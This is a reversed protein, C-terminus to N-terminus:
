HDLTFAMTCYLFLYTYVYVIYIYIYLTFFYFMFYVAMGHWSHKMPWCISVKMRQLELELSQTTAPKMADSPSCAHSFEHGLQKHM